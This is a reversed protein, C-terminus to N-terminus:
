ASLKITNKRQLAKNSEKGIQLRIHRKHAHDPHQVRRTGFHTVGDDFTVLSTDSDNDDGSVVLGSGLGDTPPDPYKTWFLIASTPTM